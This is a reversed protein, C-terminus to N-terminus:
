EFIDGRHRAFVAMDKSTRDGERQTVVEQRLLLVFEQSSLLASIQSMQQHFGVPHSDSTHRGNKWVSEAAVLRTILM